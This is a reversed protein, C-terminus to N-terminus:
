PTTVKTPALAADVTAKDFVVVAGTRERFATIVPDQLFAQTNPDHQKVWDWVRRKQDPNLSDARVGPVPESRPPLPPKPDFYYPSRNNPHM